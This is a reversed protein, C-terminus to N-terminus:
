GKHPGCSERCVLEVPFIVHQEIDKDSCGEIMDILMQTGKKGMGYLKQRVVTLSPSIDAARNDDDFSIISIDDPISYNNNMLYDRVGLAEYIGTCFVATIEPCRSLLLEITYKGADYPNDPTGRSAKPSCVWLPNCEIGYENLANRYGRLRDENVLKDDGIICGIHRHGLSILYTVAKHAGDVNDSSVFNVGIGDMQFASEVIVFPIHAANLYSAHAQASMGDLLIMGDVRIDELKTKANYLLIHYQHSSIVSFVAALTQNFYGTTSVLHEDISPIVVGIIQTTRRVLSRAAANPVYNLEKIAQMVRERTEMKVKPSNQIVRSVTSKSTGALQAVDKITPM